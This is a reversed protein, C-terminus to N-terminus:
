AFYFFFVKVPTRTHFMVIRFDIKSNSQDGTVFTISIVCSFHDKSRCGFILLFLEGGKEFLTFLIKGLLFYGAKRLFCM